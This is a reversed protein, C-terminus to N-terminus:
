LPKFSLLTTAFAITTNKPNEGNAISHEITGVRNRHCEGMRRGSYNTGTVSANLSFATPRLPSIYIKKRIFSKERLYNSLFGACICFQKSKKLVDKIGRRVTTNLIAFLVPNIAGNCHALFLRWFRFSCPVKSFALQALFYSIWCVLFVFTIVLMMKIVNRTARQRARTLRLATVSEQRPTTSTKLIVVITSYVCFIVLWPVAYFALLLFTYYIERSNENSFANNLNSSCIHRGKSIKTRLAMFYPLRALFALAWTLFVAVKATKVTFLNKMPFVVACFTDLSSALLTLVSAVIAVGHLFPVIKCLAYGLDGDVLWVPGLLYMPILRPMYFTTIVLSAVAMNMVTFNITKRRRGYKRIVAIILINGFLSVLILLSYAIIRGLKVSMSDNLYCATSVVSKDREVASSNNFAFTM